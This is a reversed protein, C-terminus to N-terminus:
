KINKYVLSFSDKLAYFTKNFKLSFTLEIYNNLVNYM